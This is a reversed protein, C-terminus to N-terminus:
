GNYDGLIYGKEIAHDLVDQGNTSQAFQGTGHITTSVKETASEPLEEKSIAGAFGRDIGINDVNFAGVISKPVEVNFNQRFDESNVYRSKESVTNVGTGESGNEEFLERAQSSIVVEDGDSDKRKDTYDEQSTDAEEGANIKEQKVQINTTVINQYQNYTNEKQVPIEIARM